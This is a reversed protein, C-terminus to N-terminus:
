ANQGAGVPGLHVILKGFTEFVPRAAEAVLGDGGVMVTLTGAEAAPGGGSVPADLLELESEAAQIALKRCTDPHITSHIVIRGGPRMAAMLQDCVEQVGADDVVCVGVHRVQAGLEAVSTAAEAG